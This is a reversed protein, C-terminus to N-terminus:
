WVLLNLWSFQRSQQPLDRKARARLVLDLIELDSLVEDPDRPLADRLAQKLWDSMHPHQLILSIQPEGVTADSRGFESHVANVKGFKSEWSQGM